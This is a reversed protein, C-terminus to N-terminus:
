RTFPTTYDITLHPIKAAVRAAIARHYSAPWDTGTAAHADATTRYTLLTPHAQGALDACAAAVADDAAAKWRGIADIVAAPIPHSGLEWRKYSREPFGLADAAWATTLGLYQRLTCLEAATMSGPRDATPM